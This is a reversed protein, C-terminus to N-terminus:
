NFFYIVSIHPKIKLTHVRTADYAADVLSLFLANSAEFTRTIAYIADVGAVIQWRSVRQDCLNRSAGAPDEDLLEFVAPVKETLKRIIKDYLITYNLRNYVVVSIKHFICPTKKQLPM